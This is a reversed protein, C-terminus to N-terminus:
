CGQGIGVLLSETSVARDVEHGHETQRQAQEAGVVAGQADELVGVLPDHGVLDLVEVGGLPPQDLQQGGSVAVQQDSAVIRLTQIGPAAGVRTGQDAEDLAM